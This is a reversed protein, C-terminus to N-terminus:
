QLTVLVNIVGTGSDLSEMAKGIITGPIYIEVGNILIPMAKMAHGPLSSTTLLDGSQIPGNEASVKCPVIGVLAVPVLDNVTDVEVLTQLDSETVDDSEPNLGSATVYERTGRPDGVFAPNTSYVGIVNTANPQTSHTLRGDLDIVLVDGPAYGSPDGSVSLMDAYDAGGGTFSGDATVNGNNRVVFERDSCDVDSCGMFIIGGSGGANIAEVAEGFFSHTIAKVADADDNTAGNVARITESDNSTNADIANDGASGVYVGDGGASAVHVGDDGASEVFMGDWGTSEVRVGHFQANFIEVGNVGASRVYVGSGDASDVFFGAKNTSLVQVGHSGASDVQLGVDSSSLNLIGSGSPVTGRIVAGPLLGLAYPAATLAQRPSLITYAGTSSGERVGIELWLATGDFVAGFDLLVTFLGDTVTMDDASVNSGVQAGGSLADYLAFQFDYDGDAPSGEDTLQGQYTFSTSFSAAAGAMTASAETNVSALAEHVAGGGVAFLLVTLTLIMIINTRNPYM